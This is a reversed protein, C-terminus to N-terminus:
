ILCVVMGAIDCVTKGDEDKAYIDVNKELILKVHETCDGLIMSNLRKMLM